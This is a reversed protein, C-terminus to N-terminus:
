TAMRSVGVEHYLRRRVMLNWLIAGSALFTGTMACWETVYVWFLAMDKVHMAEDMLAMQRSRADDLIELCLAYDGELYALDADQKQVSIEDTEEYLRDLKGGFREVFAFVSSVTSAREVYKEPERDGLHLAAPGAAPGERLDSLRPLDDGASLLGLRPGM